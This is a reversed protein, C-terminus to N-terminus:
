PASRSHLGGRRDARPSFAALRSASSKMPPMASCRNPLRIWSTVIGNMDIGLIADESSATIAALWFRADGLPATPIDSM